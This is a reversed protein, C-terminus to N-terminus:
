PYSPSPCSNYQRGFCVRSHEPWRITQCKAGCYWHQRCGSCLFKADSIGCGMCRPTSSGGNHGGYLMSNCCTAITSYCLPRPEEETKPHFIKEETNKLPKELSAESRPRQHIPHKLTSQLITTPPPAVMLSHSATTTRKTSTEQIRDTHLDIAASSSRGTHVRSWVSYSSSSARKPSSRPSNKPAETHSKGSSSSIQMTKSSETKTDAATVVLSLPYHPQFSSSASTLSSGVTPRLEPQLSPPSQSSSSSCSFVRKTIHHTSKAGPSLEPLSPSRSHSPSFTSERTTSMTKQFIQVSEGIRQEQTMPSGCAAPSYISERSSVVEKVITKTTSSNRSVTRMDVGYNDTANAIMTAVTPLKEGCHSTLSEGSTVTAAPVDTKVTAHYALQIVQHNPSLRPHIEAEASIANHATSTTAVPQHPKRPKREEPPPKNKVNVWDRIHDVIKLRKLIEEKYRKFCLIALREKDKQEALFHLCAVEHKLRKVKEKVTLTPDNGWEEAESLLSENINKELEELPIKKDDFEFIPNNPDVDDFNEQYMLYKMVDENFTAKSDSSIVSPGAQSQSAIEHSSTSPVDGTELLLTRLISEDRDTEKAEKNNNQEKVEPLPNEVTDIALAPLSSIIPPIMKISDPIPPVASRSLHLLLCADETAKKSAELAAEASLSPEKLLSEASPGEPKFADNSKESNQFTPSPVREEVSKRDLDIVLGCDSDESESYRDNTQPKSIISDLPPSEKAVNAPTSCRPTSSENKNQFPDRNSSNPQSVAASNEKLRMLEPPKGVHSNKQTTPSKTGTVTIQAARAQQERSECMRVVEVPVPGNNLSVQSEPLKTLVVQLESESHQSSRRRPIKKIPLNRVVRAPKTEQHIKQPKTAAPPAQKSPLDDQKSTANAEEAKPEKKIKKLLCAAISDTSKEVNGSTDKSSNKTLMQNLSDDKTIDSKKSDSLESKVSVPKKEKTPKPSNCSDSESLINDGTPKKINENSIKPTSSSEAASVSSFARKAREKLKPSRDRETQSKESESSKSDAKLLKSKNGSNERSNSDRRKKNQLKESSDDSESLSDETEKKTVTKKLSKAESTIQLKKPTGKRGRSSDDRGKSSSRNTDDSLTTGKNNKTEVSNKKNATSSSLRKEIIRQSTNRKVDVSRKNRSKVKEAITPPSFPEKKFPDNSDSSSPSDSKTIDVIEVSSSRLNDSCNMHLRTWKKKPVTKSSSDEASKEAKKEGSRTRPEEKKMKLNKRAKESSRDRAPVEVVPQKNKLRQSKKRVEAEKGAESERDTSSDIVIDVDSGRVEEVDRASRTSYRRTVVPAKNEARRRPRSRDVRGPLKRLVRRAAPTSDEHSIKKPGKESKPTRSASESEEEQSPQVPSTSTRKRIASARESNKATKDKIIRPKLVSSVDEFDRYDLSYRHCFQMLLEKVKMTDMQTLDPGDIVSRENFLCVREVLERMVQHAAQDPTLSSRKYSEMEERGPCASEEKNTIPKTRKKYRRCKVNLVINEQVKAYVSLPSVKKNTPTSKKDFRDFCTAGPSRKRPPPKPHDSQQSPSKSNGGNGNGMSGSSSGKGSTLNSNSGNLEGTNFDDVPEQKIQIESFAFSNPTWKSDSKFSMLRPTKKRNDAFGGEPPINPMSIKRKKAQAKSEGSSSAYLHMDDFSPRDYRFSNMHNGDSGIDQVVTSPPDCNQNRNEYFGFNNRTDPYDGTMNATYQGGSSPHLRQFGTPEEVVPVPTPTACAIADADYPKSEDSFASETDQSYLSTLSKTFLSTFNEGDMEGYEEPERKIQVKPMGDLGYRMQRRHYDPVPQKVPTPPGSSPNRNGYTGDTVRMPQYQQHQGYPPQVYASQGYNGYGSNYFGNNEYFSSSSASLSNSPSQQPTHMMGYSSAVSNSASSDSPSWESQYPGANRNKYFVPETKIPPTGSPASWESEWSTNSNDYVTNSWSQNMCQPERKQRAHQPTRGSATRNAHPFPYSREDKGPSNGLMGFDAPSNLACTPPPDVAPSSRKM